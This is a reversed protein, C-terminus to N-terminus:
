TYVISILHHYIDIMFNDLHENQDIYHYIDVIENLLILNIEISKVLLNFINTRILLSIKNTVTQNKYFIISDESVTFYDGNISPILLIDCPDYYIEFLKYM